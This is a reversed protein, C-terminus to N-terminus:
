VLDIFEFSAKEKDGSALTSITWEWLDEQKAQDYSVQSSKIVKMGEYYVASSGEVDLGVALRALAQGSEQVTHINSYMLLRLLPLIHPLVRSWLFKEVVSAKRALGTGPMLGPDFATVTWKKGYRKNIAEFRRDLAYTYLVNALKTSSYRQRGNAKASELTPHALEEASNYIADPMGSKQLPDHTGSSVIVIRSTDALYPQLLSLLLAHGIHSVAFTKEFGDDSYEVDGPFQLAANLVMSQIPPFNHSKWDSAFSRVKALQLLNLPLFQVNNQNLTKNITNAASNADSRSAIIIQYEPHKRAIDLACEYGLGSTGGTVLVSGEFNASM